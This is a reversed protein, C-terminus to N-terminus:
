QKPKVTIKAKPKVVLNVKKAAIPVTPTEIEIHDAKVGQDLLIENKAARIQEISATDSKLTKNLIM